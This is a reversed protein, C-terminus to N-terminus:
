CSTSILHLRQRRTTHMGMLDTLFTSGRVSQDSGHQIRCCVTQSLVALSNFDQPSPPVAM